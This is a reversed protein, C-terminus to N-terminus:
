STHSKDLINRTREGLVRVLPGWQLYTSSVEGTNSVLITWSNHVGNPRGNDNETDILTAQRKKLTLSGSFEYKSGPLLGGHDKGSPRNSLEIKEQEFDIM